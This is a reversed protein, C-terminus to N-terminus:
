SRSGGLGGLRGPVASGRPPPTLLPHKEAEKWSAAQTM